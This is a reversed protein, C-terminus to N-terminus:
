EQKGPPSVAPITKPIPELHRGERVLTGENKDIKIM